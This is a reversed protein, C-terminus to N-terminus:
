ASHTKAKRQRLIAMVVFGLLLLVLLSSFITTLTSTLRVEDPDFVFEITHEGAPVVLARLIWDARGIPVPQGDITAKWGNKYYVESFVALGQTASSSRYSLRNPAYATLEIQSQEDYHITALDTLQDAFRRDLVAEAAPDLTELAAMEEDPTDVLRYSQVFWANGLAYPNLLPPQDTSLILYKANLMNLSSAKALREMVEEMGTANAFLSQLEPALRRDILDQYRGLKAAHYGGLSKHFYSTRSDQFPNSVNIVRYSPSKDQLIIEDVPTPKFLQDSYNRKSEFNDNNLYRKDVMWLDVLVLVILAVGVYPMLKKRDTSRIYFFLAAAALLIFLLSRLADSQLMSQRDAMLAGMLWDPLGYQADFPSQFSFFAGSLLWLILCLGGTIGASLYLSKLLQKTEITTTLLEKLALVALLPFTFGPIVLCMEVTRFKSYLPFHYFMLDNLGPLNRGWALFIFFVTGGLIWWKGSGPVIFFALLFLFCVVAGFYVPGATFPKDGWYTPLQIEKGVQAGQRHLEQYAHSDPGLSTTSSGGMLDPIMLTLTEAKGYSWQFAYDRDLGSSVDPQGPLPTLEAQGRTSEQGSEYNLYLTNLNALVALLVGALLVGAATGLEKYAKRRLLTIVFGLALIFCFIAAYYAIQLHNALILFGVGLAFTVLGAAYKRRFVLFLGALVLPVFSLAWAKSVHGAVIIIINYSSFATAIAGLIALWWPAGLVLFLIYATVLLVFIPGATEGHLLGYMGDRVKALINPSTEYGTIHYSPMGSFMSGTWGSPEGYEVLEQSMGKFHAIDSQQLVKGEFVPFFYFLVILFFVLLAGLHPLSTSFLKKTNM